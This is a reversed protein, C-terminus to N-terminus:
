RGAGDSEIVQASPLPPVRAFDAPLPGTLSGLFAVIDRVQDASLDDGEQIRAMIRVAEPLLAVSGDHFYPSTMAVNRLVPVKFVFRDAENRTVVFRGDDVEKSGTYKAYPELLGFKQYMQGGLFPGSHCASCGESIFAGLGRKQRANLAGADGELFADFPGPTVLTREFAGIALAFNSASIPRADQPFAAAFLPV